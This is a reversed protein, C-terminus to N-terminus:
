AWHFHLLVWICVSYVFLSFFKYMSALSLYENCNGNWVLHKGAFYPGSSLSFLGPNSWDTSPDIDLPEKFANLVCFFFFFFWFRSLCVSSQLFSACFFFVRSSCFLILVSPFYPSIVWSLCTYFAYWYILSPTHIYTCTNTQSLPNRHLTTVSMGVGVWMMNQLQVQILKPGISLHWSM